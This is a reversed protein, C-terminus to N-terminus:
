SSFSSAYTRYNPDVGQSNRQSRIIRAWEGPIRFYFFNHHSCLSPFSILKFLYYNITKWMFFIFRKSQYCKWIHSSAPFLAIVLWNNCLNPSFSFKYGTIEPQTLSAMLFIMSAPLCNFWSPLSSVVSNDNDTSYYWLTWLKTTTKM